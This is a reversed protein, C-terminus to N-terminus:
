SMEIYEEMSTEHPEKVLIKEINLVNEQANTQIEDKPNQKIPLHSEKWLKYSDGNISLIDIGEKMMINAEQFTFNKLPHEQHFLQRISPFTFGQFSPLITQLMFQLLIVFSILITFCREMMSSLPNKKIKM